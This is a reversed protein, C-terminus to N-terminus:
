SKIEDAEYPIVGHASREEARHRALQGYFGRRVDLGPVCISLGVFLGELPRWAVERTGDHKTDGNGRSDILEYFCFKYTTVRQKAEHNGRTTTRSSVCESVGTKVCM